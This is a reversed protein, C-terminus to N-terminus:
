NYGVTTTTDIMEAEAITEEPTPVPEEVMEKVVEAPDPEGAAIATIRDLAKLLEGETIWGQTCYNAVYNSALTDLIAGAKLSAIATNVM